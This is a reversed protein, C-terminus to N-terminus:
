CWNRCWDCWKQLFQRFQGLLTLNQILVILSFEQDLLFVLKNILFSPHHHSWLLNLFHFNLPPFLGDSHKLFNHCDIFSDSITSENVLTSDNNPVNTKWKKTWLIPFWNCFNKFNRTLQKFLYVASIMIESSFHMQFKSFYVKPIFFHKRFHLAIDPLSQFKIMRNWTWFHRM